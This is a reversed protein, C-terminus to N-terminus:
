MSVPAPPFQMNYTKYVGGNRLVIWRCPVGTLDVDNKIAVVSEPYTNLLEFIESVDGYRGTSLEREVITSRVTPTRAKTKALQRANEDAKSAAIYIAGMAATSALLLSM